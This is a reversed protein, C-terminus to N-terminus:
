RCSRLLRRGGQLCAGHLGRVDRRWRRHGAVLHAVGPSVPSRRSCVSSRVKWTDKPMHIDQYPPKSLPAKGGNRQKQDWFDDIDNVEPLHAFNYFPAPSSTSWELTRGDWPDGTVDQNKKRDRISVIFQIVTCAIGCLIIVAGVWAIIMWSQWDGNEYSQMRRVAGFFSLVYLPM